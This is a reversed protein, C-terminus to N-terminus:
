TADTNARQTTWFPISLNEFGSVEHGSRSGGVEMGLKSAMTLDEM